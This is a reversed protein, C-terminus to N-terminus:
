TLHFHDGEGKKGVIGLRVKRRWRAAKKESEREERKRKKREYVARVTDRMREAGENYNARALAVVKDIEDPTYVFNWTSMYESTMPDVGEVKPNSLFPFYVVAIGADPEMLQWDEAVAKSHPEDSSTSREETTGVWVTCCGLDGSDAADQSNPATESSNIVDKLHEEQDSKADRLKTEAEAATKAQAKDLQGATKEATDMSKPWGLGIPWGKIGRQKAYGDAVSLWNDTKIDASADFAVLIDVDRGPRLLPYIPLNNSMGADMLQLHKNKCVSEPTTDPLRGEMGYAFNPISAPDIPHVKSLDENRGEIIDDIGGFGVLGKVLPKVERYYHSLTACFASGFLGLLLSVRLEPVRFGDAQAIDKGGEFKRGMAWTPIGANFEECFMEYPTIEFWQFWAERKAKEKISESPSINTKESDSAEEEVPIEHRVATYIPLPEEGHKIYDRQNSIKLDRDEIGVESKPVLLRAALLLGYVDVLGFEADPDGKLKEVFGSLLFKNTPAQNLATLAVPPYAIHIGIRAKLHDVLKDLRRGGLSSHYLAQLWCSGSVGATYTICDFLGAERAALMSGTGAVLARLGGGSGVMAICPVDDPHIQEEPMDLYTALATRVVQKRRALFDKEENCLDASVRVSAPQIIEPNIYPDHAEVWIEDALSGPAMSLERQLKRMYEPMNSAWEPLIFDTARETVSAFKSSALDSVMDLKKTFSAWAPEKDDAADNQGDKEPPISSPRPTDKVTIKELEIRDQHAQLREARIDSQMRTAPLPQLQDNQYLIYTIAGAMAVSGIGRLTNSSPMKSASTDSRTSLRRTWGHSRVNAKRCPQKLVTHLLRREHNGHHFIPNYFSITSRPAGCPRLLPFLM